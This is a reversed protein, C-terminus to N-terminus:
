YSIGLHSSNLRTSTRDLMPYTTAGILGLRGPNLQACLIAEYAMAQSKGSGIPGSFGKYKAGVGCHFRRQSALPQYRFRGFGAVEVASHEPVLGGARPPGDSTRKALYKNKM